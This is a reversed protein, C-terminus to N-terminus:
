TQPWMSEEKKGKNILFRSTKNYIKSKWNSLGSDRTMSSAVKFFEKMLEKSDEKVGMNMLVNLIVKLASYKDFSVTIESALELSEKILKLSEGKEGQSM